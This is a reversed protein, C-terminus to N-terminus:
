VIELNKLIRLYAKAKSNKSIKQAPEPNDTKIDKIVMIQKVTKIQRFILM